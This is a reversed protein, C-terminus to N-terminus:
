KVLCIDGEELGSVIWAKELNEGGYTVYRKCSMGDQLINVYYGNSDGYVANKSIMLVNEMRKNQYSVTVENMMSLEKPDGTLLVMSVPSRLDANMAANRYTIVTGDLIIAKSGHTQTIKVPMNYRLEDSSSTVYVIVKSIDYVTGIYSGPFLTDKVHLDALEGFIGSCPATIYETENIEQYGAFENKMKEIEEERQEKETDYSVALRDYALAALEREEADTSQKRIRDYEKILEKNEEIYITLNEEARDIRMELEKVATEDIVIKLEALKDGKNVYTGISQSFKVFEVTGIDFTNYIRTQDQTTLKGKATKSVIFDGREVQTTRTNDSIEESLAELYLDEDSAHAKESVCLMAVCIIFATLRFTKTKLM